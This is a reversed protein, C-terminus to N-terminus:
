SKHPQTLGHRLAYVTATARATGGSAGIKQYINSIHREVTRVSLVLKTAIEQNSTGAAILRLIEIERPTLDALGPAPAAQKHLALEIDRLLAAARAVEPEAGLRQLAVQAKQAQQKAAQTRGLALLSRALEIRAQGTEFPAGSHHYLDVADEFRRRAMEHDDRAAAIAAEVLTATARLPETAVLTAISQLETGTKVAQDVAGLAIQALALLELAAARETRNEAPVSRLFREALDATTTADGQDLALAARGLLALNAGMTRFPHSEAQALLAAAEDLRGQRRRLDALRVIGEAAEAPRTAILDNTAAALTSEAAAWDGRWVLIGAYHTRCLSFMLPYKWRTALEQVYTCWQAARVYDRVRECAYILFCCASACTDLDAIEGSVAATTSEDLCRMGEAVEGASVRALGELALALMELDIVGLTRGVTAAQAGLTRATATDNHLMLAFSGEYIALMGQEPVPDLGELLRHARQFWGNAIAYEGRFSYYDHALYTAVRAAGQYDGHQRYLQYARERADFTVAADDQWWAAMGLGELAEATEEGRLAAEFCARAEGWAGRTLAERGASLSDNLTQETNSKRM